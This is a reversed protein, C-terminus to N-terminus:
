GHSNSRTKKQYSWILSTVIMCQDYTCTAIKSPIVIPHPPPIERGPINRKTVSLVTHPAVSWLFFRTNSNQTNIRMQTLTDMKSRIFSMCKLQIWKDHSSQVKTGMYHSLTKNKPQKILIWSKDKNYHCPLIGRHKIFEAKHKWILYCSTPLSIDNARFCQKQQKITRPCSCIQEYLSIFGNQEEHIKNKSIYM